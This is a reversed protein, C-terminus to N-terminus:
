DPELDSLAQGYLNEISKPGNVAQKWLILPLTWCCCFFCCINCPEELRAPLLAFWEWVAAGVGLWRGSSWSNNLRRSEPPETRTEHSKMECLDTMLWLNELVARCIDLTNERVREGFGEESINQVTFELWNGSIRIEAGWDWQLGSLVREMRRGAGQGPLPQLCCAPVAM